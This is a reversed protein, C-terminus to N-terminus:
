RANKYAAIKEVHTEGSHYRDGKWKGLIKMVARARAKEEYIAGERKWRYKRGNSKCGSVPRQFAM